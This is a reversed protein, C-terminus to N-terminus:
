GVQLVLVRLVQVSKNAVGTVLVTADVLIVQVVEHLDLINTATLMDADPVKIYILL